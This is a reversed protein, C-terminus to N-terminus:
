GLQSVIFHYIEGFTEFKARYSGGTPTVTLQEYDINFMNNDNLTRIVQITNEPEPLGTQSDEDNNGTIFDVQEQTLAMNYVETNVMVGLRAYDIRKVNWGIRFTEEALWRRKNGVAARIM